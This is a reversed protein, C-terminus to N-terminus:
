QQEDFILADGEPADVPAVIRPGELKFGEGFRQYRYTTGSPYDVDSAQLLGDEVLLDLSVPYKENLSEYVRLAQDIRQIQSEVVYPQLANRQGAEPAAFAPTNKYTVYTWAGVALLLLIQFFTVLHHVVVAGVGKHSASAVEADALRLESNDSVLPLDDPLEYPISIPTPLKKRTM